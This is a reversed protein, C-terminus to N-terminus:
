AHKDIMLLGGCRKYDWHTLKLACSLMKLKGRMGMDNVQRRRLLLYWYCQEQPAEHANLAERNSEV